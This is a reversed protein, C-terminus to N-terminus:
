DVLFEEPIETLDFDWAYPLVFYILLTILIIGVFNLPLGKRIMDQIRLYGTGFVVANPPTAVPLM